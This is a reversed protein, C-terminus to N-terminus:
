EGYVIPMLSTDSIEKGAAIAVAANFHEPHKWNLAHGADRIMYVNVKFDTTERQVDLGYDVKMWKDREAYLFSVSSINRLKPIRHCLPEYATSDMRFIKNVPPTPLMLNAHLYERMMRREDKSMYDGFFHNIISKGGSSPIIRICSELQVGFNWLSGITLSSVVKKTSAATTTTRSQEQVGGPVLLLLQDVCAPHQEAYAVCLYGGLSHGALIMREIQQAQQWEFLSDIFFAETDHTTEFSVRPRSSLGWGLLDVAYVTGFTQALGVLNRAFVMSAATYGHILVLPPANDDARTATPASSNATTSRTVQISHMILQEQKEKNCCRKLAFQTNPIPTDMTRVSVANTEMLAILESETRQLVQKWHDDFM